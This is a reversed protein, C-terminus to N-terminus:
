KQDLFPRPEDSPLFVDSATTAFTESPIPIFRLIDYSTLFTLINGDVWNQDGVSDMSPLKGARCSWSGASSANESPAQRADGLKLTFSRVMSGDSKVSTPKDLFIDLWFKCHNIMM